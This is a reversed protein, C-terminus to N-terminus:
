VLIIERLYTIGQKTIKRGQSNKFILNNKLLDSEIEKEIYTRSEEFINALTELSVPNNSFTYHLTKLYDVQAQNLGFKFLGLKKFVSIVLKKSIIKEKKVIAFDLIRKLLNNAIRPNNKSYLAIINKASSSIKVKLKIANNNIITEIEDVQYNGLKAILGFRNELPLSLKHRETTAGILTFPPLKLRMIKKDGEPGITIDLKYDELALFILEFLQKNVSHIEDIFVITGAKLSSFLNLIDAPKELMLGQAYKIEKKYTQAVINALSTKGRGPPGYFLLHDLQRKQIKAAEILIKLTEKLRKQGIFQEFNQPRLNINM